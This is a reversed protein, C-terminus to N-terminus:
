TFRLFLRDYGPQFTRYLHGGSDVNRTATM